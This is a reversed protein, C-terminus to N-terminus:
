PMGPSYFIAEWGQKVHFLVHRFFKTRVSCPGLFPVLLFPIPLCGFLTGFLFLVKLM